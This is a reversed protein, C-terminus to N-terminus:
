NGTANSALGAYFNAAIFRRWRARCRTACSRVSMAKAANKEAKVDPHHQINTEQHGERESMDNPRKSRLHEPLELDPVQSQHMTLPDPESQPLMGDSGVAAEVGTEETVHGSQEPEQYRNKQQETM